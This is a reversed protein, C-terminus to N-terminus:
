PIEEGNVHVGDACPGDVVVRVDLARAKHRRRATPASVITAPVSAHFDRFSNCAHRNQIRARSGGLADTIEIAYFTREARGNTIGKLAM